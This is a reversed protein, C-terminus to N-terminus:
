KIMFAEAERCDRELVIEPVNKHANRVERGVTM